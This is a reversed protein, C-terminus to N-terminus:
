EEIGELSSHPFYQLNLQYVRDAPLDDKHAIARAESKFKQLKKEIIRSAHGSISLTVTSFNRIGKPGRQFLMAKKALGLVQLQYQRVLEDKVYPGADLTRDTVKWEGEENMCAMGLKEILEISERAQLPTIPPHVRRALDQYDGRFSWAQLLFYVANHYWHKYFAYKEPEVFRRPTRNLAILQDFLLERDRENTTQNFDVLTRFYLDEDADMKLVEVFRDVYTKSLPRLGKIIDNFYSRTNPLGLEKCLRARTFAPDAEQRRAQYDELFARFNSYEFLNVKQPEMRAL